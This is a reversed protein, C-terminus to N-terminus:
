RWKFETFRYCVKYNCLVFGTHVRLKGFELFTEGCHDCIQIIRWWWNGTGGDECCVIVSHTGGATYEEVIIQM